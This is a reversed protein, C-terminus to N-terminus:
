GGVWRTLTYLSEQDVLKEENNPLLTYLYVFICIYLYVLIHRGPEAPQVSMRIGEPKKKQM